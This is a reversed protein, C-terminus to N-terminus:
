PIKDPLVELGPRGGKTGEVLVAYPPRDARGRCFRLHKPEVGAQRLGALLDTLREPSHVLAFRGKPSLVKAATQCLEPFTCGEM